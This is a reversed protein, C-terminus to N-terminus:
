FISNVLYWQKSNYIPTYKNYPAHQNWKATTMKVVVNGTSPSKTSYTQPRQYGKQRGYIIRNELGKIWVKLNEPMNDTYFSNEFSYGLVPYAIDDGAVIVFGKDGTNSYVYLAPSGTASSKVNDAGDYVLKLDSAKTLISNSRFFEVAIQQAKEKTIIDAYLFSPLVFNLLLVLSIKIKFKM